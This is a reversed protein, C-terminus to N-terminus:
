RALSSAFNTIANAHCSEPWRPVSLHSPPPPLQSSTRIEM